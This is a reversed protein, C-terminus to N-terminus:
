QCVSSDTDTMYLFIFMNKILQKFINVTKVNRVNADLQIWLKVAMICISMLDRKKKLTEEITINNKDKYIIILTKLTVIDLIKVCKYQVFLPHTDDLYSARIVNRIAKKQLLRLIYKISLRLYKGM